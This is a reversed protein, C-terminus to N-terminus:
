VTCNKSETMKLGRHQCTCKVGVFVLEAKIQLSIIRDKNVTKKVFSRM